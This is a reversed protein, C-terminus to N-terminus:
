RSNVRTAKPQSFAQAELDAVDIGLAHEQV